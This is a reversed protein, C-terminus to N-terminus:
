NKRKRMVGMVIVPKGSTLSVFIMNISDETVFIIDSLRLIGKYHSIKTEQLIEFYRLNEFEKLKEKLFNVVNFDTRKSTTLIIDYKDKFKKLQSFFKECWEIDIKYNQDNGGIL